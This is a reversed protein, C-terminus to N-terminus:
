AAGIAPPSAPIPYCVRLVAGGRGSHPDCRRPALTITGGLGEVVDRALALGVGSGGPKTSFGLEFVREDAEGRRRPSPHAPPGEGDDAIELMVCRGTKGPEAWASVMVRGGVFRDGARQVSEVANRVGNFVVAYVPGAPVDALEPAVHVDLQVRHEEAMPAVVDVAHRVADALSSPPGLGARPSGAGGSLGVMSSRVLEAMQRMAAHVADLQRTLSDLTPPSSRTEPGAISRRALSIVRMSGDLLSSLEHTLTTLRTAVFAADVPDPRPSSPRVV